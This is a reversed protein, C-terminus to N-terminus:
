GRRGRFRYRFGQNNIYCFSIGTVILAMSSIGVFYNIIRKKRKFLHNELSGRSMFEYILVREEEECCYGILKVLNPHKLQGLLIVESQLHFYFM